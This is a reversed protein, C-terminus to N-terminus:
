ADEHPFAYPFAYPIPLADPSVAASVTTAAASPRPRVELPALPTGERYHGLFLDAGEETLLPEGYHCLGPAPGPVRSGLSALVMRRDPAFPDTITLVARGAEQVVAPNALTVALLGHHGTFHVAGRARMGTTSGDSAPVSHDGAPACRDDAPFLVRGDPRLQAGGSVGVHGDPLRAVYASFGEHFAWLLGGPLAPSAAPATSPAPGAM